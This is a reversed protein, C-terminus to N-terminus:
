KINNQKFNNVLAKLEIESINDNKENLYAKIQDTIDDRQQQNLSLLWKEEIISHIIPKAKEISLDPDKKLLHKYIEQAISDYKLSIYDYFRQQNILKKTIAFILISVVLLIFIIKALNM